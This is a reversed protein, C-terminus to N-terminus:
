TAAAKLALPHRGDCEEVDIDLLCRRMEPEALDKTGLDASNRKGPIKKVKFIGRKVFHQIWLMCTDLHRVKGLGIRGLIGKAASSDGGLEITKIDDGFDEAMSRVGLAASGARVQAAFEAEGSSLAPTQQSAVFSKVLHRGILIHVSSVSKRDTLDGAWDSDARVTLKTVKEQEIYRVRWRPHAKLFRAVRKLRNLGGRTPTAMCKAVKNAAFQLHPMDQALYGLRMTYSRYESAEVGTLKEDHYYDGAKEGPTTVGRANSKDLGFQRILIEGHRPDPEYVIQRQGDVTEFSILRNLVSIHRDDGEEFGLKARLKLIMEKGLKKYVDDVVLDEGVFIMDDGHRWGISLADKHRYLCPCSKGTLYGVGTIKENSFADYQNAADRTGYMTRLLRGVMGEGGDEAPLEIYTERVSKPHFHARSVDLVIMKLEVRRGNRRHITAAWHLVYRLAELPPTAAFTGEMFPDKWRFEKAVLRSRIQQKDGDGKDVDIWRVQVFTKGVSASRPVKEYVPFSRLFEVEEVRAARVKDAPLLLGTIEDYHKVYSDLDPEEHGHAGAEVANICVVRSVQLERRIGKLLAAVLRPPYASTAKAKGNILHTHEHSGPRVRNPCQFRALEEAVRRSSTLWGTTKRAPAAKGDSATTTQGAACQDNRVWQVGPRRLLAQVREEQWSAAGHPHEHIFHYGDDMQANYLEISLDLHRRGQEM